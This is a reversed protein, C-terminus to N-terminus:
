AAPAASGARQNQDNLVELDEDTMKYGADRLVRLADRVFSALLRSLCVRKGYSAKRPRGALDDLCIMLGPLRRYAALGARDVEIRHRRRRRYPGRQERRVEALLRKLDRNHKGRAQLDERLEPDLDDWRGRSGM